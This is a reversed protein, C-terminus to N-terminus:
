DTRMGIISYLEVRKGSRCSKLPRKEVLINRRGDKIKKTAVLRDPLRLYSEGLLRVVRDIEAVYVSSDFQSYYGTRTGLLESNELRWAPSDIRGQRRDQRPFSGPPMANARPFGAARVPVSGITNRDSRRGQDVTEAADWPLSRSLWPLGTMRFLYRVQKQPGRPLIFLRAKCRGDPGNLNTGSRNADYAENKENLM